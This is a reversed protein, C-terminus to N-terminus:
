QIQLQTNCTWVIAHKSAFLFKDVILIIMLCLDLMFVYGINVTTKCIFGCGSLLDYRLCHTDFIFTWEIRQKAALRVNEPENM